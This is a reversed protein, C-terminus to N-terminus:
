NGKEIDDKYQKRLTDKNEALEDPKELRELKIM